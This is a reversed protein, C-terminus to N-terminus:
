CCHQCRFRSAVSTDALMLASQPSPHTTHNVCTFAQYIDNSSLLSFISVLKLWFAGYRSPPIM